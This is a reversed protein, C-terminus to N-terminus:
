PTRALSNDFEIPRNRRDVPRVRQGEQVLQTGAAVVWDQLTLGGEVIANKDGFSTLTVPTKRLTFTDPDMVWVHARGEDATVAAMPLTLSNGKTAGQVYVRASQGLEAGANGNDFAVRAEFTRLGSEASPSLERIQGPFPAGPNSWLELNVPQGVTFRTIVKEPLDIRVERDGDAALVFASQGAAVVQGADIMRRTIVGNKPAKLTAYDVQNAAVKLQSRARELQALSNEHRTKVADLQSEGVLKRDFLEQFRALENGANRKEAEAAELQAQAANRQLLLDQADLTALAQGQAVRDGVEVLRQTVAGGVRFALAPEHRARVEGPYVELQAGALTPQVVIAPRPPKQIGSEPASCASTLLGGVILALWPLQRLRSNPSSNM